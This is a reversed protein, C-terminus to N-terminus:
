SSVGKTSERTLTRFRPQVPRLGVHRWHRNTLLDCDDAEAVKQLGSRSSMCRRLNM